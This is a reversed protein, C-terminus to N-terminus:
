GVLSVVRRCCRLTRMGRRGGAESRAAAATAREKAHVGMGEASADGGRVVLAASAGAGGAAKARGESASSLARRVGMWNSTVWCAAVSGGKWFAYQFLWSAPM